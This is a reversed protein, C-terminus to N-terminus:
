SNTNNSGLYINLKENEPKKKITKISYINKTNNKDIFTYMTRGFAASIKLPAETSIGQLKFKKKIPKQSNPSPVGIRELKLNHEKNTDFYIDEDSSNTRNMYDDNLGVLNIGKPYDNPSYFM